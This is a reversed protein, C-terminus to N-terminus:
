RQRELRWRASTESSIYRHKNVPSRYVTQSHASPRYISYDKSVKSPNLKPMGKPKRRYRRLSWLDSRSTALQPTYKQQDIANSMRSTLDNLKWDYDYGKPNKTLLEKNRKRVANQYFKARHEQAGRRNVMQSHGTLHGSTSKIRMRSRGTKEMRIQNHVSFYKSYTKPAKTVEPSSAAVKMAKKNALAKVGRGGTAVLRRNMKYAMATGGVILATGAAVKLANKQRDSLGRKGSSGQDTRYRRIRGTYEPQKRVGWKMGKVGYHMLYPAHDQTYM